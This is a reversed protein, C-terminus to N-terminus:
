KMMFIYREILTILAVRDKVVRMDVIKSLECNDAEELLEKLKGLEYKSYNLIDKTKKLHHVMFNSKGLVINNVTARSLGTLESLDRQEIGRDDMIAKFYNGFRTRAPLYKESVLNDQNLILAKDWTDKVVKVFNFQNCDVKSVEVYNFTPKVRLFTEISVKPFGNKPVRTKIHFKVSDYGLEMDSLSVGEDYFISSITYRLQSLGTTVDLMM